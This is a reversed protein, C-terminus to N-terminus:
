ESDVDSQDGTGTSPPSGVEAAPDPGESGPARRRPGVKAANEPVARGALGPRPLPRLKGSGEPPAAKPIGAPPPLPGSAESAGPGSRGPPPSFAPAAEESPVAVDPEAAGSGTAEAWGAREAVEPPLTLTESQLRPVGPAYETPSKRDPAAREPAPEPASSTKRAAVRPTAPIKLYRALLYEVERRLDDLGGDNDVVYNARKRKEDEGMQAAIRARVSDETVNDRARVRAVRNVEAASVLIVGEFDGELNKEFLLPVEYVAVTHGAAELAQLVHEYRERIRPHLISELQRRRAPDKFVIGAMRQRDLQGGADLVEAGFAEVVDHLGESGPAVVMRSLEDASVVPIGYEELMKAVASKGSGIGGTLGYVDV